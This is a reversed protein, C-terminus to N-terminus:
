QGYSWGPTAFENLNRQIQLRQTQRPRLLSEELVKDITAAIENASADTHATVAMNIEDIHFGAERTIVSSAYGRMHGSYIDLAQGVNGHTQALLQKLYKVCGIINMMPNNPDVGM